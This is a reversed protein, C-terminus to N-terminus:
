KELAMIVERAVRALPVCRNMSMKQLYKYAQRETMGKREM